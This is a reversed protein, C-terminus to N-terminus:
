TVTQAARLADDVPLDPAAVWLRVAVEAQARTIDITGATLLDPIDGDPTVCWVGDADVTPFAGRNAVWRIAKRWRRAEEGISNPMGYFLAPPRALVFRGTMAAPVEGCRRRGAEALVRHRFELPAERTMRLLRLIAAASTPTAQLQEAAGAATLLDMLERVATAGPQHGPRRLVRNGTCYSCAKLPPADRHQAQWAPAAARLLMAAQLRTVTAPVYVSVLPCSWDLCLMHGGDDTRSIKIPSDRDASEALMGILDGDLEAPFRGIIDQIIARVPRDEITTTM